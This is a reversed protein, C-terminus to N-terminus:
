GGAGAGTASTQIQESLWTMGGDSTMFLAFAGVLCMGLVPGFARTKWFTLGVVTIFVAGVGVRSLDIYENLQDNLWEMM